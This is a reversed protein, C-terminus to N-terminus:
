LFYVLSFFNLTNLRQPGGTGSCGLVMGLSSGPGPRQMLFAEVGKGVTKNVEVQELMNTGRLIFYSYQPHEQPFSKTRQMCLLDTGSLEEWGLSPMRLSRSQLKVEAKM